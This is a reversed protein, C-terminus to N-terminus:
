EGWLGMGLEARIELLHKTKGIHGIQAVQGCDGGDDVTECEYCCGIWGVMEIM